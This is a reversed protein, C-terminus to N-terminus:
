PHNFRATKDSSHFCGVRHDLGGINHQYPLFVEKVTIDRHEDAAVHTGHFGRSFRTRRRGAADPFQDANM